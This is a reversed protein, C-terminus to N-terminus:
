LKLITAQLLKDKDFVSFPLLNEACNSNISSKQSNGDFQVLKRNKTEKDTIPHKNQKQHIQQHYNITTRQRNDPKDIASKRNKSKQINSDTTQATEQNDPTSDTTPHQGKITPTPTV